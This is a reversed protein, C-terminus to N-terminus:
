IIKNASLRISKSNILLEHHVRPQFSTYRLKYVQMTRTPKEELDLFSVNLVGDAEFAEGNGTDIEEGKTECILITCDVKEKLYRIIESLKIRYEKSDRAHMLMKNVNDIVLKHINPYNSFLRALQELNVREGLLMNEILLNKDLHKTMKKLSQVDNCARVLEDKSESVSLYYCKEGKVAGEMLFNLGLLTKGTGPGGSLLIVTRSPFGGEILKDLSSLGTSIRM